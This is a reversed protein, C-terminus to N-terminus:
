TTTVIESKLSVRRETYNIPNSKQKKGFFDKCSLLYIAVRLLKQM